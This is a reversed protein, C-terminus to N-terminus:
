PTSGTTSPNDSRTINSGPTMPTTTCRTYAPVVLRVALAYGGVIVALWPLAALPVSTMDVSAGVATVPLVVAIVVVAAASAVVARAPGPARRPRLVLLVLVQSLIGEIFWVAQFVQQEAPTDM